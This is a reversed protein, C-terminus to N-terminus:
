LIFKKGRIFEIIFLIGIGLISALTILDGIFRPLTRNFSLRVTHKGEPLYASIVGNSDEPDIEINKNDIHLKWGPFYMIPFIATLSESASYSLLKNTSTNKDVTYTFNKDNNTSDLVIPKGPNEKPSNHMWTSIYENASTTTAQNTAYYEDSNHQYKGSSILPSVVFLSVIAMALGVYKIKPVLATAAIIVPTIFTLIGLVRWPFDISKLGPINKWLDISIPTLLILAFLVPISYLLVRNTIIEYKHKYLLVVGLTAFALFIYEFEINEEFIHNNTRSVSPHSDLPTLLLGQQKKFEQEIGTLPTTGLKVYSLESLAPVWFTASLAIGIIVMLVVPGIHKYLVSITSGKRYWDKNKKLEDVYDKFLRVLKVNRLFTEVTLYYVFFPVFLLAMVNHTIVLFALAFSGGLLFRRKGTLLLRLGMYCLLPFLLFALTEGISGRVYLNVLRYPASLYFLAAIIGALDSKWLNRAFVYMALVSLITGLIFLAKVSDEFSLGALHFLEGLYYPGPYSFQFLPYGYGFNLSGSWRVPFQQQRLENHMSAQRVVAWIGDDTEFFGTKFFPNLFPLSVLVLFLLIVRQRM